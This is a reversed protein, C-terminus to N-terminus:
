WAKRAGIGTAYAGVELVKVIEYTGADIITVTGVNENDGVPYRPAYGGKANNSTVYLYKGDPSLVSGHPESLGRGLVEAVVAVSDSSVVRVANSGKNPVFVVAGSAAYVPHWPMRGVQVTGRVSVKPAEAVDFFIFRGSLQGGAAITRGDPSQAFQVLVEPNGGIDFLMSEWTNADVNVVTNQSLSATYVREGGVGVVLAHPRPVFVDIEDTAMDGTAIVGIRSPPDVASMSRGVYLLGRDSDLALMGPVEFEATDVLTNDRDFKLVRNEGILSVYWHSGDTEVAIHHPKATGSFGLKKLDIIRAVVQVDSDIVSVTAEGQNAVYVFDRVGDFPIEGAPSPAGREIWSEIISLEAATMTDAGVESPHPGGFRMTALEVLLSHEPAFAIVVDGSDSGRLAHEWTDLRLGANAQASGHCRNCKAEFIDGVAGFSSAAESGARTAGAPNDAVGATGACAGAAVLLGTLVLARMGSM